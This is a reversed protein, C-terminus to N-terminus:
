MNPVEKLQIRKQKWGYEGSEKTYDYFHLRRIM